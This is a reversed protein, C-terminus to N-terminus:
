GQHGQTGEGRRESHAKGVWGGGTWDGCCGVEEGASGAWFLVAWFLGVWFLVAGGVVLFCVFLHRM